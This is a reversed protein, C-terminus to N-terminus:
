RRCYLVSFYSITLDKHFITCSTSSDNKKKIVPTDSSYLIRGGGVNELFFTSIKMTYSTIITVPLLQMCITVEYLTNLYTQFFLFYELM